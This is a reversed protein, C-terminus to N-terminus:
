AAITYWCAAASRSRKIASPRSAIATSAPKAGTIGSARGSPEDESSARKPPEAQALCDIDLTM